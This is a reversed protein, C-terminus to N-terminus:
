PKGNMAGFFHFVARDGRAEYWVIDHPIISESVSILPFYKTCMGRKQRSHHICNAFVRANISLILPKIRRSRPFNTLQGYKLSARREQAKHRKRNTKTSAQRSRQGKRVRVATGLHSGCGARPESRNGCGAGLPVGWGGVM